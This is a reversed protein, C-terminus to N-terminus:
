AQRDRFVGNQEAWEKLLIRKDSGANFWYGHMSSPAKAANRRGFLLYGCGDLTRGDRSRTEYRSLLAGKETDIAASKVEWEGRITRTEDISQGILTTVFNSQHIVEWFTHAEGDKSTIRGFWTGQLYAAGYIHKKCWNSAEIKSGVLRAFGWYFGISMLCSLLAFLWPMAPNPLLQSAYVGALIACLISAQAVISYYRAAQKM